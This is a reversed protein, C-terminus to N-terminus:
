IAWCSSTPTRIQLWSYSSLTTCPRPKRSDIFAANNPDIRGPSHTLQAGAGTGTVVTSNTSTGGPRDILAVGRDTRFLFGQRINGGPAGGNDQIEEIAIIDPPKLNNVILGALTSFKSPPDTPALNEVNFTATTLQYAAPAAATEQALGGPTVAV